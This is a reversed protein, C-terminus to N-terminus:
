GRRAPLYRVYFQLALEAGEIATDFDAVTEAAIRRLQEISVDPEAVLTLQLTPQGRDVVAQATASQVDHHQALIMKAASAIKGTSVTLTGVTSTGALPVAGARHPRLNALLLSLGLALTGIAVSALMWDWWPEAPAGAYWQRDAHAFANRALDIDLRWGVVATGGVILLIALVLTVARDIGATRRKM